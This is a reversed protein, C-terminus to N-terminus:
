VVLSWCVYGQARVQGSKSTRSGSGSALPTTADYLEAASEWLGLERELNAHQAARGVPVAPKVAAFLGLAEAFLKARAITIAASRLCFV